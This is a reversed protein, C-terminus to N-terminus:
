RRTRIFAPASRAILARLLHDAGHGPSGHACRSRDDRSFLRELTDVLHDDSGSGTEIVAAACDRAPLFVTCRGRPAVRLFLRVDGTLDVVSRRATGVDLVSAVVGGPSPRPKNSGM